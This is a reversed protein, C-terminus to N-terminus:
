GRAIDADICDNDALRTDGSDWIGFFSRVSRSEHGLSGGSDPARRRNLLSEAFKLVEGQLEEPLQKLFEEFKAKEAM